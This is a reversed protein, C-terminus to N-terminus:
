DMSQRLFCLDILPNARLQLTTQFGLIWALLPTASTKVLDLEGCRLSM